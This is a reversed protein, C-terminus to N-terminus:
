VIFHNHQMTPWLYFLGSLAMKTSLVAYYLSARLSCYQTPSFFTKSIEKHDPKNCETIRPCVTCSVCTEIAWVVRKLIVKQVRSAIFSDTFKLPHQFQEKKWPFSVAGLESVCGTSGTSLAKQFFKEVSITTKCLNSSVVWRTFCFFFLLNFM